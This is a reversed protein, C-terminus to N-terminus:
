GRAGAPDIQDAIQRLYAAMRPKDINSHMDCAGDWRVAVSFAMERSDILVGGTKGGLFRPDPGENMADGGEDEGAREDTM